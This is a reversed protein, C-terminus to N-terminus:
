EKPTKQFAGWDPDSHVLVGDKFAYTHQKDNFFTLEVSKQDPSLKWSKGGWGTGHQILKGGPTFEWKDQHNAWLYACLIAKPSNLDAPISVRKTEGAIANAAKTDNRSIASKKANELTWLYRERLPKTAAEVDSDYRARASQIDSPLDDAALTAVLSLVALTILKPKM